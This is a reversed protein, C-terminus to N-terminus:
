PTGTSDDRTVDWWHRESGKSTETILEYLVDRVQQLPMVGLADRAANATPGWSLYESELHGEVGHAGM